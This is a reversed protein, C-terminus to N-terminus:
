PKLDSLPMQEISLKWMKRGFYIQSYIMVTDNSYSILSSGTSEKKDKKTRRAMALTKAMMLEKKADLSSMARNDFEHIPLSRQILLDSGLNNLWNLNDM